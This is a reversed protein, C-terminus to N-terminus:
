EILDDVRYARLMTVPDDQPRAVYIWRYEPDIGIMHM